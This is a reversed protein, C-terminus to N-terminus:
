EYNGLVRLSVKRAASLKRVRAEHAFFGDASDGIIFFTSGDENDLRGRKLVAGDVDQFEIEIRDVLLAM